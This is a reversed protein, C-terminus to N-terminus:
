RLDMLDIIEEPLQDQSTIEPGQYSHLIDYVRQRSVSDLMPIEEAMLRTMFDDLPLNTHRTAEYSGHRRDEELRQDQAAQQAPTLYADNNSKM